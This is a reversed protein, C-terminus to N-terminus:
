EVYLLLFKEANYTSVYKIFMHVITEFLIILWGSFDFEVVTGALLLHKSGNRKLFIWENLPKSNYIIQFKQKRYLYLNIIVPFRLVTTTQKQLFHINIDELTENTQNIFYM